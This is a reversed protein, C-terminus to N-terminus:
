ADDLICTTPDRYRGAKWADKGGSEEDPEGVVCVPDSEEDGVVNERASAEGGDHEGEGPDAGGGRSMRLLECLVGHPEDAIGDPLHYRSLPPLVLVLGTVAHWPGDDESGVAALDEEEEKEAPVQVAFIESTVGSGSGHRGFLLLFLVALVSPELDWRGIGALGWDTNADLLTEQVQRIFLIQAETIHESCPNDRNFQSHRLLNYVCGQRNSIYLPTM